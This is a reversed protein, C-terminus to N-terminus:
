KKGKKQVGKVNGKNKRFNSKTKQGRVPLGQSHRVGQYSRIKKKMKIDNDQIFKLDSGVLHKNEGTEPDKKRNLIWSPSGFKLPNALAEEIRKVEEEVLEGSKKSKAIGLLKCIMNSYAVGVGKIKTMQHAIPKNGDLDVGAVRIIQKLEKGEAM